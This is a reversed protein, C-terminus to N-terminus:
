LFLDNFLQFAENVSFWQQAYRNMNAPREALIQSSKPVKTSFYQLTPYSPNLFYAYFVKVEGTRDFCFVHSAERAEVRRLEEGAWLDPLRDEEFAAVLWDSCVAATFSADRM